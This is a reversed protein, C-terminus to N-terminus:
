LDKYKRMWRRDNCEKVTWVWDGQAYLWGRSAIAHKGGTSILALHRKQPHWPRPSEGLAVHRLNRALPPGARAVLGAGPRSPDSPTSPASM